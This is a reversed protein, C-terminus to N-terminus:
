KLGRTEEHSGPWLRCANDGLCQDDWGALWLSIPWTLPSVTSRNYLMADEKFICYITV